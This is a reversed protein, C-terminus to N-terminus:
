LAKKTYNKCSSLSLRFLKACILGKLQLQSAAVEACLESDVLERVMEM